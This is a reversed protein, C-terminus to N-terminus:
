ISQTPTVLGLQRAKEIAASRSNVGLKKYCGSLLNRITSPAINLQKAIELSSADPKSACLSLIELQRSTPMVFSHDSEKNGILAQYSQQSFYFGGSAISSIVEALRLIAERDDKVIFGRAGSDMVSKILTKQKHMSIILIKLHPYRSLLKPIFHLLPITNLDDKSIPVSIDLLLVDAKLKKLQEQLDKANQATIVIQIEPSAQLRFKYGDITSQHDDLIALRIKIERRKKVMLKEWYDFDIRLPM